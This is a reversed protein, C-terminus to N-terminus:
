EAAAAANQAADAAAAADLVDDVAAQADDAAEEATQQTEEIVEEAQAETTARTDVVPEPVNVMAEDAPVEVTDAVADESADTSSGCAALVLAAPTALALALKKM